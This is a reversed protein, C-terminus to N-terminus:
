PPIPPQSGVVESRLGALSGMCGQGQEIFTEKLDEQFVAVEHAKDHGSGDGDPSQPCLPPSCAM